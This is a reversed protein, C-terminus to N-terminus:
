QNKGALKRVEAVVRDVDAQPAGAKVTQSAWTDLTDPLKEEFAAQDKFTVFTVGAAKAKEIAAEEAAAVRPIEAQEAALGAERIAKADEPKMAELLQRNIYIQYGAFAGFSISSWYKAVEQFKSSAALDYSYMACDVVGHQMGQYIDGPQLNVPVAGFAKIAEPAYAGFTRIKTGELDKVTEIPKTCILHYPALGHVLLPVLNAKKMEAKGAPDDDIVHREVTLATRADKFYGLPVAGLSSFPLEAPFYIPVTAGMQVGGSGVLQLVETPKGLAGAWFIKIKIDGNTRKEVDAAFAADTQSTMLTEPFFHMLRLTQGASSATAYLGAAAFAVGSLLLRCNM